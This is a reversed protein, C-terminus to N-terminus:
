DVAKMSDAMKINKLKPIMLLNVLLSFVFTLAFSVLLDIWSISRGFTLETTDIQFLVYRELFFGAGLGIVGSIITLIIEERFVYGCVERLHYGLVKLTALEKNREMININTLNYVVIIALLGAALVLIVIIYNLSDLLTNLNDKEDSIFAASSVANQKMLTTLYADAGDKAVDVAALLTNDTVEESLLSKDLYLYSGIYNETIATLTLDQSFEENDTITFTDGPSLNLLDATTESMIVSDKDLTLTDSTTRDRFSIYTTLKELDDSCIMTVDTSKTDTQASISKEYVSQYATDELYSKLDDNMGSNKLDITLNYSFLQNYQTDMAERISSRLSFGTMMLATCGAVGVITMFLHGKYRFINRATAKQSFSFHKWLFTMYELFIRSGAKPAKARMLLAPKERLSRRCVLITVGITCLLELGCSLGGYFLNIQPLFPPLYYISVFAENIIVPLLWFGVALGIICGFVTSISSYTVYKSLIVTKGYGLAKMVGIQERDEEIMRTMTTLCVLASILFFFAPFVKAVADVKEVNISYSAYTANSSRDMVYWKGEQLEALDAEGDELEQKADAFETEATALGEQYDKKAQELDAKAQELEKKGEELEADGQDLRYYTNNIESEADQLEKRAQSLADAKEQYATYAAIREENDRPLDAFQADISKKAAALEAEAQDLQSETEAKKSQFEESAKDAQARGDALEKETDTLTQENDAIETEATTIKELADALERDSDAKEQKYSAWGDDLEQRTTDYLEEYRLASRTKGLDKLTDLVPKVTDDYDDTFAQGSLAGDVTLYLDTYVDLAYADQDVYIVANVKGAGATSIESTTSFYFPTSVIGVVTFTTNHYTDDLSDFDENEESMTLVSGIEYTDFSYSNGVIVCEDANEPMRGELLTLRNIANKETMYNLDAGYIRIVQNQLDGINMLSDTCYAPCVSEVGDTHRVAQIDEMTLGLNSKIFIDNFHNEDYFKDMSYKMDPTTSLVGTLFGVGLAVIATIAIFRGLSSKIERRISKRYTHKM